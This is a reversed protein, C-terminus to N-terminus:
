CEGQKALDLYQMHPIRLRLDSQACACASRRMRVECLRYSAKGAKRFESSINMNYKCM